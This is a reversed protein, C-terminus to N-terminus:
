FGRAMFYVGAAIVGLISLVASSLFALHWARRLRKKRTGGQTAAPVPSAGQIEIYPLRALITADSPLEWEGLLVDHRLENGIGTGVGLILGLLIGLGGLLLRNPKTPLVPVAAPDIVTFRESKQRREMDTAMEASIKKDLLSKYNAKSIEYDRMIGAMEQERVPLKNVRAQYNAIDRLIRAQDSRRTEFESNALTIQSKLDQIRTWLPSFQPSAAAPKPPNVSKSQTNPVAAAAAKGKTFRDSSATAEAEMARELAQLKAIDARMRKVDPYDDSYRVRLVDLQAALVESAKKRVPQNPEPDAPPKNTSGPVATEAASTRAAFSSEAAQLNAELTIKTQQARNLADRNAELEVQLRSLVGILANQQEPLEGNHKLKYDSVAAELEDLKKKAEQLQTDIFESTGEAQVERTKLNEEIYLNAIRNAVQAVVGPDPGEYGVRFAGPRNGIWGKVLNVSIDRRMMELIEEEYKAKREERYLGFDDIIKKLRTSSLIQQNITALRDQLDTSVTSSVYKEPIKQSDVLILAETKYIAPLRWVIALAVVSVSAWILVISIKRKWLMRVVSLPSPMPLADAQKLATM